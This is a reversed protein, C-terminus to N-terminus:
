SAKRLLREAPISLAGSGHAPIFISTRRGDCAGCEACTAGTRENACLTADGIDSCDRLGVRFTGWGLARARTEQEETEVSAMFVGRTWRAWHYRWQHTYGLHSKAARNVRRVLEPPLMAPDGYAGWRVRHGRFARASLSVTGDDRIAFLREYKGAKYAHWINWPGQGLNVYCARAHNGPSPRLPCHGCISADHGRKVADTPSVDRRLIYIQVMPGTKRNASRKSQHLAAIAVIPLGDHPSAGDWLVGRPQMKKRHVMFVGSM